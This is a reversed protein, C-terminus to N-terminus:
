PVDMSHLIVCSDSSLLEAWGGPGSPIGQDSAPAADHSLLWCVRRAQEAGRYPRLAGPLAPEQSATMLYGSPTPCPQPAGSPLQPHGPPQKTNNTPPKRQPSCTSSSLRHSVERRLHFLPSAPFSLSSFFYSGLTPSLSVSQCVSSVSGLVGALRLAGSDRLREAEGSAVRLPNEEEILKKKKKGLAFNGIINLSLERVEVFGGKRFFSAM